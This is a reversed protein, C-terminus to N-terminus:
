VFVLNFGFFDLGDDIVMIVYVIIVNIYDFGSSFCFLEYGLNNGVDIWVVIFLM